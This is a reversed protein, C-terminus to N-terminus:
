TAMRIIGRKSSEIFNVIEELLPRVSEDEDKIQEKLKQVADKLTLGSNFILDYAEKIAQRQQSTFGARRLGIVNIGHLKSNEPSILAFPPVDQSIRAEAGIFAYRGINVFQHVAVYGSLIANDHITVWGSIGAGNVMIINNGLKCDHAVHTAVMLYNNNGIITTGDEVSGRHITVFERIVNNDGIKVYSKTGPKFKLDQPEHGITAGRYITNNKGIEVWSTIEVYPGIKTYDGIKAGSHIYAYPGIEVGEGLEVGEEVIATPHIKTM